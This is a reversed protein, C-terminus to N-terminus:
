AVQASTMWGQEGPQQRLGGPVRHEQDDFVEVPAVGGGQLEKAKDDLL